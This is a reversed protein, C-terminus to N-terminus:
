ELVCELLVAEEKRLIKARSQNVAFNGRVVHEVHVRQELARLLVATGFAKKRGAEFDFHHLRIPCLEAFLEGGIGNQTGNPHPSLVLLDTDCDTENHRVASEVIVIQQALPPEHHLRRPIKDFWWAAILSHLGDIDEVPQVALVLAVDQQFPL